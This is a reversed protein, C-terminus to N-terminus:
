PTLSLNNVTSLYKASYTPNPGCVAASPAIRLLPPNTMLVTAPGAPPPPPSDSWTGQISGPPPVANGRYTCTIPGGAFNCTITLSGNAPFAIAFISTPDDITMANVWPLGNAVVTCPVVPPGPLTCGAWALANVNGRVPVGAVNNITITTAIGANVCTIPQAFVGNFVGGAPANLNLAFGAPVPVGAQRLADASASSAGLSGILLVASGLLVLRRVTRM